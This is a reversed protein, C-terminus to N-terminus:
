CSCSFYAPCKAPRAIGLVVAAHDWFADPINGHADQGYVFLYEDGEGNGMLFDEALALTTNYSPCDTHEVFDKLWAESAAKGGPTAYVSGSTGEFVPHSWRHSLATITRPYLYAWFRTGAPVPANLFPDVIGCRQGAGEAGSVVTDGHVNPEPDVVAVHQSPFLQTPCIASFVAVHVADRGGADDPLVNGMTAVADKM